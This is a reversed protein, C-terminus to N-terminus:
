GWSTFTALFLQCIEQTSKQGLIVTIIVQFLHNQQYYIFFFPFSLYFSTAIWSPIVKKFSSTQETCDINNLLIISNFYYQVITSRIYNQLVIILFYINPLSICKFYNSLFLLLQVIFNFSKNNVHFIELKGSM